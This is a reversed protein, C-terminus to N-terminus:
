TWYPMRIFFALLTIIFLIISMIILKKSVSKNQIKKVIIFIILAILIVLSIYKIISIVTNIDEYYSPFGPLVIEVEGDPIQIEKISSYEM